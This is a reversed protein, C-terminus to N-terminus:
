YNVELLQIKLRPCVASVERLVLEARPLPKTLAFFKGTYGLSQLHLGLDVVDWEPTILPSIILDPKVNRLMTESLLKRQTLVIAQEQPRRPLFSLAAEADVILVTKVVNLVSAIGKPLDLGAQLDAHTRSM